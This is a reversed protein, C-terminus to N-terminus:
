KGGRISASDVSTTGDATQSVKAEITRGDVVGLKDTLKCEYRSIRRLTGAAWAMTPIHTWEAFAISPAFLALAACDNPLLDLATM